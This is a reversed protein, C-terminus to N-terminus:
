AARCKQITKLKDCDPSAVLSTGFFIFSFCFLIIKKM